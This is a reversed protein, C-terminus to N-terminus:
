HIIALLKKSEKEWNLLEKALQYNYLQQKKLNAPDKYYQIKSCLVEKDNIPFHEGVKYMKNFATQMATESLIIANGALLYTFVKNTLCIDRNYPTALEIALGVDFSAVFAPLEEPQIIGAFHINNIMIGANSNIYALMDANCRGALTLHIQQDDLMKLVDILIELGRNIGITQSFWCLQLTHDLRNKETFTPQQKLPFCNNLTIVSGKYGPHDKKVAETILESAASYYNLSPLWKNELYQLRRRINKEEPAHEGRYYDEFDFGAKAGISGAAKVAVALAGLNHGIYWDAKIKKAERLLEDYARAQAREFLSFMAGMFPSLLGAIKFRLRTFFYLGKKEFPSGGVMIYKWSVNSLLQKDKEEAWNIFFCYLVTVDYGAAFFADAEKVIRPNGSPQGTTILVIKKSM